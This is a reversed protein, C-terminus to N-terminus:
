LSFLSYLLHLAYLSLHSLETGLSMLWRHWPSLALFFISKDFIVDVIILCHWDHMSPILSLLCQMAPKGSFLLGLTGSYKYRCYWAVPFVLSPSAKSQSPYVYRYPSLLSVISEVLGEGKNDDPWQIINCLM